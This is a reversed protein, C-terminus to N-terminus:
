PITDYGPIERKSDIEEKNNGAGLLNMFHELTWISEEEAAMAFKAM